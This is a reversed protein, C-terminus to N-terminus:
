WRCRLSGSDQISKLTFTGTYSPNRIIRIRTDINSDTNLVSFDSPTVVANLRTASLALM